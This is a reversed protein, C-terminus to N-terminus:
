TKLSDAFIKDRDTPLTTSRALEDQLAALERQAATRDDASLRESLKTLARHLAEVVPLNDRAAQRLPAFSGALLDGISWPPAVERVAGDKDHHVGEDLGAKAAAALSASLRDICAIATCSDNVGPSLARLAIEILLNISFQVDGDATRRDAIIIASAM